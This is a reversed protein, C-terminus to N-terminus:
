CPIREILKRTILGKGEVMLAFNAYSYSGSSGFRELVLTDENVLWINCNSHNFESVVIDCISKCLQYRNSSVGAILLGLARYLRDLEENRQQIQSFLRANFVASAAQGAFLTLLRM